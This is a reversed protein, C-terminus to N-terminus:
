RGYARLLEDVEAYGSPFRDVGAVNAGAELLARVSDPSRRHTWYTDVCARVALGLPTDGKRNRADVPAGRQILLVVTTHHAMWAAAHLATEHERSGAVDVGLDLLGRVGDTNGTAAFGILFDVGKSVLEARTEPERECIAQIASTDHTACAALLREIGSLEIAFGRREFLELVDGRGARAALAIASKRPRAFRARSPDGYYGSEAEHSLLTPDAGYDLLLEFFRLANDRDVAQHLSARGWWSLKNPDAGRELLWKIADYDHWDLKRHLLTVVSGHNLM